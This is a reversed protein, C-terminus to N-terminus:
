ATNIITDAIRRAQKVRDAMGIGDRINGALILGQNEAEIREIASLREGSNKGYQPIAHRYSNVRILDPKKNTGLTDRIERLVIEFIEEDNKEVISPDRTGGLFVSLLAGDVPARGSFIASPFLIGLINRKEKEPVLGGFADLKMGDWRRYGASVQVVRAYDLETIRELDTKNAFPFLSAIVHAPATSVVIEAELNSSNGGPENFSVTYGNANRHVEIGSAGTIIRDNGISSTLAATLNGLGGKVSFVERTAKKELETKPLKSKAIAGRIFSGYQQELNYLKPLAYKTVLKEPDGAYIGSIFPNVAYDLFSKGLRRRVLDAVTEDPNIGPKRFPEGLIRLKDTFSFLPTGIASVPGSPLATWKGKYLIYRKGAGSGAKELACEDGLEEFLSVLEPASLVGTNPGTEYIFGDESLTNIVGGTRNEKEVIMFDIGAKKLWFGLSLGTLGSGAIVVRTKFKMM